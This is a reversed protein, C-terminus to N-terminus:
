KWAACTIAKTTADQNCVVGERNNAPGSYVTSVKGDAATDQVTFMVTPLLLKGMLTVVTSSPANDSNYTPASFTLADTTNNMGPICVKKGFYKKRCFSKGDKFAGAVNSIPKKGWHVPPAVTANMDSAFVAASSVSGLVVALACSVLTKKLM